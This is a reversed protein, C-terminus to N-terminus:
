STEGEAADGIRSGPVVYNRYQWCLPRPLVGVIGCFQKPTVSEEQAKRESFFMPSSFTDINSLSIQGFPVGAKVLEAKVYGILDVHLCSKDDDFIDIHPALYESVERRLSGEIPGRDTITLSEKQICPGIFAHVSEPEWGFDESLFLLSQPLLRHEINELGVSLFAANQKDAEALIVPVNDAFPMLAFTDSDRLIACNCDVFEDYAPPDDRLSQDQILCIDKEFDSIEELGLPKPQLFLVREDNVDLLDLFEIVNDIDDKYDMNGAASTSFAHFLWPFKKPRTMQMAIPTPAGRNPRQLPQRFNVSREHNANARAELNPRYAIVLDRLVNSWESKPVRMRNERGGLGTWCNFAEQVDDIRNRESIKVQVHQKIEEEINTTPVGALTLLERWELCIEKIEDGRMTRPSIILRSSSPGTKDANKPVGPFM